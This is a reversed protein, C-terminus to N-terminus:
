LTVSLKKRVPPSQVLDSSSIDSRETKFLLEVEYDGPTIDEPIPISYSRLGEFYMAVTQQHRAVIEGSNSKVVAELSGLFPSNGAVTFKSEVKIFNEKRSAAIEKFELGTSTEGNKQFVAIVQELRLSIQTSIGETTTEEVSATQENSAVKVRTFYMGDPRNRDPRVQFRVAQQQGPALIFSKPFTRIRDGLGAQNERISDSYIMQLNGDADNGPYGFLFSINVEQPKDSGNSVYMTGIGNADAFVTTPALSVQAQVIGFVLLFQISLLLSKM